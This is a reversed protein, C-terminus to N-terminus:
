KACHLLFIKSMKNFLQCKKKEGIIKERKKWKGRIYYFGLPIRIVTKLAVRLAVILAAFVLMKTDKLESLADAWYGKCFPHAYLKTSKQLRAM